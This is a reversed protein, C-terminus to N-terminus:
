ITIFTTANKLSLQGDLAGLTTELDEIESALSREDINVIVDTPASTQEAAGRIAVGKNMAQQRLSALSARVANLFQKEGPAVERRWTLWDQISRTNIGLTVSTSVNGSQIAARLAVLRAQLDSIGQREARLAAVSGGQSQLPDRVADQRALYQQVFQRKSELRKGITKIEALAETITLTTSM